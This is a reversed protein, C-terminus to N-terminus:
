KNAALGEKRKKAIAATVEDKEDNIIRTKSADVGMRFLLTAPKRELAEPRGNFGTLGTAKKLQETKNTM